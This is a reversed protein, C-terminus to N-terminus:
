GGTWSRVDGFAGGSNNLPSKSTKCVNFRSPLIVDFEDGFVLFDYDILSQWSVLVLVGSAECPAGDKRASGARFGPRHRVEMDEGAELRLAFDKHEEARLCSLFM